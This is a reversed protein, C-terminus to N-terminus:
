LYYVYNFLLKSKKEESDLRHYNQRLELRYFLQVRTLNKNKRQHINISFNGDADTFGSLWANSDISSNDLPKIELPKIQSLISKTVKFKSDRNQEIYLNLWSITRHLAEIKPTRM